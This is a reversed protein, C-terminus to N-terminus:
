PVTTSPLHNLPSCAIRRSASPRHSAPSRGALRAPPVGKREASLEPTPAGAPLGSDADTQTILRESRRRGRVSAERELADWGGEPM